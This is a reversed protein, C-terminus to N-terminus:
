RAELLADAHDAVGALMAGVAGGAVGFMSVAARLEAIGGDVFSEAGLLQTCERLVVDLGEAVAVKLAMASAMDEAAGAVAAM